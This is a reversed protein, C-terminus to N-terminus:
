QHRSLYGPLSWLYDTRTKDAFYPDDPMLRWREVEFGPQRLRGDRIEMAARQHCAMCNSRIGYPTSAELWPNFCVLPGADASEPPTQMSLAVEMLYHRWYPKGPLDPPRSEASRGQDPEHHWWFTAWVWDPIEKATVHLAVLLALDGAAARAEAAQVDSLTVAYFDGVPVVKGTRPVNNVDLATEIQGVSPSQGTPDVIVFTPWADPGYQLRPDRGPDEEWVPVATKRHSPIPWWVAKIAVADRPFEFITRQPIPARRRDFQDHMEKYSSSLHYGTRRIHLYAEESYLVSVVPQSRAKAGDIPGPSTPSPSMPGWRTPDSPVVDSATRPTAPQRELQRSPSFHFRPEREWTTQGGHTTAPGLRSGFVEDDSYWTKWIPDSDNIQRILKTWLVWGHDRMGPRYRADRLQELKARDKPFDADHVMGQYAPKRPVPTPRKCGPALLCAVAVCPTLWPAARM